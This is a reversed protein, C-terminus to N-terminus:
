GTSLDTYEIRDVNFTVQVETIVSGKYSLGFFPFTHPWCGVMKYQSSITGDVSLFRIYINAQYRSKVNFLGDPGVILSKWTDLYDGLINPSPVLFKLWFQQVNLLGAYGSSYPGVILKNTAINYDGFQVHQVLKEVASPNGVNTTGIVSPLKVEFLYNRQFDTKAGLLAKLSAVGM